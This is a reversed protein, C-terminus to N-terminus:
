LAEQHGQHRSHHHKHSGHHQSFASLHRGRTLRTIAGELELYGDCVEKKDEVLFAHRNLLM